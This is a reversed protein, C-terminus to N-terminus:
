YIYVTIEKGDIVRQTDDIIKEIRSKLVNCYISGNVDAYYKRGDQPIFKVADVRDSKQDNFDYTITVESNGLTEGEQPKTLEYRSTGVLVNYFKKFNDVDLERGNFMVALVNNGEAKIEFSFKGDPTEVTLTDLWSIMPTLLITNSIDEATWELYEMNSLPLEFIIKGGKEMGYYCDGEENLKGMIIHHSETNTVNGNEDLTEYIFSLERAPNNLECEAMKEETAFSYAKMAAVSILKEFGTDLVESDTSSYFPERLIYTSTYSAANGDSERIKELYLTDNPNVIRIEDINTKNEESCAFIGLKVFNLSGFVFYMRIGTTAKYVKGNGDAMVYFYGDGTEDGVLVTHTANKFNVTGSGTPEDLGYAALDTVNEAALQYGKFASMNEAFSEMMTEHAEIGDLENIKYGDETKLLTYEGSNKATITASVFDDPNETYIDVTIKEQSVVSSNNGSQAEEESLNDGLLAYVPIFIAVILVFASAAAIMNKARRTLKKKVKEASM